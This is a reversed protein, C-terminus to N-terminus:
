TTDLNPRPPMKDIHVHAGGCLFFRSVAMSALVQLSSEAHKILAGLHVYADM